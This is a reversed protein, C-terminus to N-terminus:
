AGERRVYDGTAEMVVAPVQWSPRAGGRWQQLASLPFVWAIRVAILTAGVLVAPLLWSEGTRSLERILTPLELGILSFVASELLFVVTGWVATLQLRIGANTFMVRTLEHYSSARDFTVLQEAALDQMRVQRLRTFPHGRHTVLVLSDEKM